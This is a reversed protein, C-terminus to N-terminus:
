WVHVRDEPPLYLADGPTVNFAKYWADMNRLTGNVRYQAPSHPDTLMQQRLAADRQTNRWVQGFALFFRQDGTLGDIVPAEKGDLSMHYARYAMSLGGIDGLNEGLTLRGNVCTKGDDLPCFADYQKVVEDGFTTFAKLDADAWWNRLMGTGDSKAGQDDFGHGIEHGIVAGIAGYNVAPDASLNFFPPQLIAAPFVIENKVSNYYANVTQPLMGWETRDVPQGLRALDYQRNWEAAAVANAIPTDADITLGDYTKFKDPYGIKPDFTDLKALAQTKTAPTMWDNQEISQRLASRLNAVLDVMRAKNEAPFYRGVYAQGLVEGLQGQVAGIARKWRPRQEEQGSLTKGYFEFSADDIDSPLYAAYSSLFQAAMYAKLNPLPTETLLKEMAPLGGGIKEALGDALGALEEKTPPLQPVLFYDAKAFGGSDLVTAMPFDPTLALLESRSLRNYTIDRDRMAARDWEAQAVKYEFDYVTQATAAPDAYGAKGLLFALYKRYKDQIDRNRDSDVLYYDRSPLGMGSFGIQVAYSDPQKADVTVGGGVLGPYGSQEFLSALETLDKAEFIKTLYPYAPTLGAANIADTNLFADYADVIRRESSGEPPPSAALEDVLKRVNARAEEDLLNFAGFRTMDAPIPNAAIWRSNVYAFFDDGPDISKDLQSTDVGWTGFTMTPMDVPAADDDAAFAPLAFTLAAASVSAALITRIM